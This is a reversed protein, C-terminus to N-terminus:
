WEVYKNEGVPVKLYSQVKVRDYYGNFGYISYWENDTEGLTTAQHATAGYTAEPVPLFRASYGDLRMLYTFNFQIQDESNGYTGLETDTAQNTACISGAYNGDEDYFHICRFRNGAKDQVTPPLPKVQPHQGGAPTHAIEREIM